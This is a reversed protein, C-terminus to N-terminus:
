TMSLQPAYRVSNVSSRSKSAATRHASSFIYSRLLSCLFTHDNDIIEILRYYRIKSSSLYLIRTILNSNYLLFPASERVPTSIRILYNPKPICSINPLQLNHAAQKHVSKRIIMGDIRNTYLTSKQILRNKRICFLSM